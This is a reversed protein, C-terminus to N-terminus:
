LGHNNFLNMISKCGYAKCTDRKWELNNWYNFRLIRTMVRNWHLNRCMKIPCGVFCNRCRYISIDFNYKHSYQMQTCAYTHTRWHTPMYTCTCRPHTSTHTQTTHYTDQRMSNSAHVTNYLIDALYWICCHHIFSVVCFKVNLIKPKARWFIFCMLLRIKQHLAFSFLLKETEEIAYTSYKSSSGRLVPQGSRTNLKHRWSIVPCFIAKLAGIRTCLVM